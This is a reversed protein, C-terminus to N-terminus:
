WSGGGGGGFGGGSSGGSFGSGGSGASSTQHSTQVATGMSDVGSGIDRVFTDPDFTYDPDSSVYWSPATLAIGEFANAWRDAAGLVLAYPLLRGFITPDKDALVKIRQREAKDVFRAFALSQRRLRVGVLTRAPMAGAFFFFLIGSFLTGLVLPVGVMATTTFLFFPVMVLAGGIARYTTRVAEPNARFLGAEAMTSYLQKKILEIDIVSGQKLDSLTVHDHWGGIGSQFISQLMQREFLKIDFDDISRAFTQDDNYSFTRQLQYDKSSGWFGPNNIEIIKLYGRAAMDIVISIVDNLDAREDVIVGMEAPTLEKPPQWDVGVAGTPEEDTGLHRWTAYLGVFTLVPILIAPWWDVLFWGVQRGVAPPLVSGEPLGVVVTMGNGPKIHFAQFFLESGVKKEVMGASSETGRQGLFSQTRVDAASVGNPLKLTLSAEEIDYPWQDGTVNWYIEPKKDFFNFARHLSYDIVYTHTGLVEQDPSGIKINVDAGQRSVQHAIKQKNEDQVSNLRFDVTYDARYRSYKVPMIRFIGHRSQSFNASIKEVVHLSSDNSAEMTVDISDIQDALCSPSSIASFSICLALPLIRSLKKSLKISLMM